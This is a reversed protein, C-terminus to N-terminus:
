EVSEGKKLDTGQVHGIRGTYQMIRDVKTKAVDLIRRGDDMGLGLAQLAIVTAEVTCVNDRKGGEGQRRLPALLSPPSIQSQNKAAAFYAAIEDKLDLRVVDKPLKNVVKRANSWTGEISILVIRRVITDESNKEGQNDLFFNRRLESASLTAVDEDDKGGKGPWLIVPIIDDRALLNHMIDDHEDLGRMLMDTGELGLPLLSGTNSTRGWEGDHTWVIVREVGRPLSAKEKFLNCVCIPLYTWCKACVFPRRLHEYRHRCIMQHKAKGIESATLHQHEDGFTKLSEHHTQSIERRTQAIENMEKITLNCAKAFRESSGLSSSSSYFTDDSTILMRGISFSSLRTRSTRQFLDSSHRGHNGRVASWPPYHVMMSSKRESSRRDTITIARTSKVWGYFLSAFAVYIHCWMTIRVLGRM